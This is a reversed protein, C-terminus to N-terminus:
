AQVSCPFETQCVPVHPVAQPQKSPFVADFSGSQHAAPAEEVSAKTHTHPPPPPCDRITSTQYEFCQQRVSSSFQVTAEPNRSQAGSHSSAQSTIRAELQPIKVFGCWWVSSPFIGGLGGGCGSSGKWKSQSEHDPQLSSIVHKAERTAVTLMGQSGHFHFHVLAVVPQFQSRHAFISLKTEQQANVLVKKSPPRSRKANAMASPANGAETENEGSNNSVPVIAFSPKKRGRKVSAEKSKCEGEKEVQEQCRGRGPQAEKRGSWVFDQFYTRARILLHSQGLYLQESYVLEDLLGYKRGSESRAPRLAKLKHKKDTWTDLQKVSVVLEEEGLFEDQAELICNSEKGDYEVRLLLGRKGDTNKSTVSWILLTRYELKGCFWLIKNLGCSHM